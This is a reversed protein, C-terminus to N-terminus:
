QLNVSFSMSSPQNLTAVAGASVTTLTGDANVAYGFVGTSTAVYLFKGSPEAYLGVIQALQIAPNLTIAVLAGSSADVSFASVSGSDATYVFRGTPLAAVGVPLASLGVQAVRAIHGGSFYDIGYVRVTKDGCVVYLFTDSSNTALAIPKAGIAFPSGDPFPAVFQGASELLEPSTGFYQYASISSAGQNAV